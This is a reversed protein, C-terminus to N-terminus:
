WTVSDRLLYIRKHHSATNTYRHEVWVVVMRYTSSGVQIEVEDGDAYTVVNLGLTRACGDRVNTAAPVDLVHTWRTYNNGINGGRGSWFRPILRCAVGAAVTSGGFPRKITCSDPMPPIAM